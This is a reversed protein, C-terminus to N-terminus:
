SRVPSPTYGDVPDVRGAILGVQEALPGAQGAAYRTPM